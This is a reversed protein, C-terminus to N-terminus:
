LIFNFQITTKQINQFTLYYSGVNIPHLQDKPNLLEQGIVEFELTKSSNEM